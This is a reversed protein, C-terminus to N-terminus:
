NRLSAAHQRAVSREVSHLLGHGEPCFDTCASEDQAFAEACPECEHTHSVFEDLAWRYPLTPLHEIVKMEITVPRHAM